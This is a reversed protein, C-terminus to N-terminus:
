DLRMELVDWMMWFLLVLELDLDLLASLRLMSVHSDLSDASSTPMWQHGVTMVCQAGCMTTAYKWVDRTPMLEVLLVFLEKHAFWVSLELM